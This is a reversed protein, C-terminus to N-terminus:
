APDPRAPAEGLAINEVLVALEYEEVVYAENLSEYNAVQDYEPEDVLRRRRTGEQWYISLNSLKTIMIANGPFGSVRIAPLGGLSKSSRLIRDTAEVETATAGTTQAINFYKDDVLDHGVIVVLDTDSRHREHIGKKADLVLADLSSYDAKATVANDLEPDYLTVGPKVYIAKLADNNTGDSEVTLEGDDIVQAPAHTRLKYLWGENVDSLDPNADRDTDAAVEVGHFGIMIRDLAIQTAIDGSLIREFEPRHRWADLQDYGRAWDFNTKECTYAYKESNTGIRGPMRRNGGSTNTRGAISRGTQVGLAQGKQNTVPIINIAQLFESSARIAAELKQEPTPDVAFTVAASAVGNLLAVRAAYRTFLKRTDNRM